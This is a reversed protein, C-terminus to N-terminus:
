FLRAASMSRHCSPCSCMVRHAFYDAVPNIWVKVGNIYRPAIGEAPLHANPNLGLAVIIEKPLRGENYSM